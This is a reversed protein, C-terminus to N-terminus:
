GTDQRIVLGIGSGGQENDGQYFRTFLRDTDVNELGPGQDSVSIRVNQRNDSLETRITVVSREPSHKIANVLLNSLIVVCKEKDFAVNGIREDLIYDFIVTNNDEDDIFDVCTERIWRNLHYSGMNLRAMGVEMKRADLVMNILDKMRQSQKFVMLLQKYHSDGPQISDVMKKLPAYILTLPTRLEHSINILFRVKEEYIQREHEKIMWKVRNSKRRLITFVAGSLMASFLIGMIAIFWWSKYWPPLVVLTLVQQRASWRRRKEYLQRLRYSGSVLSSINLETDYSTLTNAYKEDLSIVSCVPVCSTTAQSWSVCNTNRSDWPLVIKGNKLEYMRNEEGVFFDMLLVPLDKDEAQQLDKIDADICLM